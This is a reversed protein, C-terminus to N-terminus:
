GEETNSPVVVGDGDKMSIKEEENAVIAPDDEGKQFNSTMVGTLNLALDTLDGLCISLSSSFFITEYVIDDCLGLKLLTHQCKM